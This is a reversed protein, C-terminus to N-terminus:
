PMVREARARLVPVGVECDAGLGPIKKIATELCFCSERDREPEHTVASPSPLGTHCSLDKCVKRQMLVFRECLSCSSPGKLSNTM